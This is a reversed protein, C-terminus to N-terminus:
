RTTPNSALTMSILTGLIFFAMVGSVLIVVFLGSGSNFQNEIVTMALTGISIGAANSLIQRIVPNISDKSRDIAWAALRVFFGLITAYVLAQLLLDFGIEVSLILCSLFFTLGLALFDVSRNFLNPTSNEPKEM